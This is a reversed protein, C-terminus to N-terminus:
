DAVSTITPVEELGGIEIVRADVDFSELPIWEGDQGPLLRETSSGFESSFM